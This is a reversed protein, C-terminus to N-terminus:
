QKSGRCTQGPAYLLQGPQADAAQSLTRGLGLHQPRSIERTMMRAAIM